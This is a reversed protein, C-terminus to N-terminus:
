CHVSVLPKLDDLNAIRNGVLSLHKLAPCLQLADLGGTLKNDGLDLQPLLSIRVITLRKSLIEECM